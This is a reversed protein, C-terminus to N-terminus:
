DRKKARKGRKGRGPKPGTREDDSTGASKAYALMSEKNIVYITGFKVAEVKGDRILRRIYERNYRTLESAEEISLSPWDPM